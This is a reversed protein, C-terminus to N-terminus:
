FCVYKGYVFGTMESDGLHVEYWTTDLEWNYYSSKIQIKSGKDIGFMVDGTPDGKYDVNPTTRVNLPDKETCVHAHHPDYENYHAQASKTTALELGGLILGFAIALKALKNNM